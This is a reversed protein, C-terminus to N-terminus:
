TKFCYIYKLCFAFSTFVSKWRLAVHQGKGLGYYLLTWVWHGESFRYAVNVKTSRATRTPLKTHVSLSCRPPTGCFNMILFVYIIVSALPQFPLREYIGCSFTLGVNRILHELGIECVPQYYNIFDTTSYFRINCTLYELRTKKGRQLQVWEM